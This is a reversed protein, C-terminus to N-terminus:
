VVVGNNAVSNYTIECKRLFSSMFNQIVFFLEFNEKCSYRGEEKTGNIM